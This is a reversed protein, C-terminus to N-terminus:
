ACGDVGAPAAARRGAPAAARAASAAARRARAASRPARPINARGAFRVLKAHFARRDRGLDTADAEGEGGRGQGEGSPM